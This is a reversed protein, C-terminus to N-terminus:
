GADNAESGRMCEGLGDLGGKAVLGVYELCACFGEHVLSNGNEVELLSESQFGLPISMLIKKCSGLWEVSKRASLLSGFCISSSGSLIPTPSRSM